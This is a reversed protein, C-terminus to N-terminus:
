SNGRRPLCRIQEAAVAVPAPGDPEGIIEQEQFGEFFIVMEVAVIELDFAGGAGALHEVQLLDGVFQAIAQHRNEDGVFGASPGAM